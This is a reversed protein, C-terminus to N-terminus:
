RGLRCDIGNNALQPGDILAYQLLLVISTIEVNFWVM